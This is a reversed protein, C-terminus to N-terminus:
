FIRRKHKKLEEVDVKIQKLEEALRMQKIQLQGLLVSVGDISNQTAKLQAVIQAMLDDIEALVVILSKV